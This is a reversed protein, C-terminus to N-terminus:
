ADDMTVLVLTSLVGHLFAGTTTTQGGIQGDLGDIKLVCALIRLLM